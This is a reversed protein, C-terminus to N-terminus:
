SPGVCKGFTIITEDRMANGSKGRMDIEGHETTGSILSYDAVHSAVEAFPPNGAPQSGGLARAHDSGDVVADNSTM